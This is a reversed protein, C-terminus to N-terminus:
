LGGLRYSLDLVEPAEAALRKLGEIARTYRELGARDDGFVGHLAAMDRAVLSTEGGVRVEAWGRRYIEAFGVAKRGALAVGVPAAVVGLIGAFWGRRTQKEM